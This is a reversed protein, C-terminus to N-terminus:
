LVKGHQQCFNDSNYAVVGIIKRHQPCCCQFNKATTPLLASCNSCHPNINLYSLGWRAKLPVTFELHVYMVIGRLSNFLILRVFMSLELVKNNDANHSIVCFFILPDIDRHIHICISFSLVQYDSVLIFNILSFFLINFFRTSSDM